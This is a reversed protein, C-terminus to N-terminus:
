GQPRILVPIGTKDKPLNLVPIGTKYFFSTCILVQIGQRVKMILNMRVVSSIDTISCGCVPLQLCIICHEWQVNLPSLWSQQNFVPSWLLIAIPCWAVFNVM